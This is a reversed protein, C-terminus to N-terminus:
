RQIRLQRIEMIPTSEEGALFERQGVGRVPGVESLSNWETVRGIRVRQDEAKHSGDYLAPIHVRGAVDGTTEITASRWLMDSLHEVPNFELSVLQDFGVWYYKGTATYVEVTPGVLDDLDRIDDFPVGNIEGGVTAEAEVAESIKQMAGAFDGDRLCLIANLRLTQSETPVAVFDPVRGQSFVERRSLESRILHRLLSVGVMANPDIQAAADLQKDARELDGSFCLLECLLSRANIDTPKNRVADTAATVAGTLDGAQYLEIPTAM